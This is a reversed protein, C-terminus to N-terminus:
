IKQCFEIKEGNPGQIIFFKVGNAFFPRGDIGDGVITLGMELAKQYCGEVDCCAIAVHDVAGAVGAIEPLEYCELVASGLELFAVKHEENRYTMTFGIKEYFLITEELDGCPIGIHCLGNLFEKM